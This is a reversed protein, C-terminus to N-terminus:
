LIYKIEPLMQPMVFYKDYFLVKQYSEASLGNDTPNDSAVQVARWGSLGTSLKGLELSNDM